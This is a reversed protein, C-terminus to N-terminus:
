GGDLSCAGFWSPTDAVHLDCREKAPCGGTGPGGDEVSADFPHVSGPILCVTHCIGGDGKRLCVLGDACDNAYDCRERNTLGFSDVCTASGVEDEVLCTEGAKCPETKFPKCRQRYTCVDHLPTNADPGVLTLDCAGSIGEPDSKGCAQDDGKCCAPSCRGTKPGGDSCANGVCTLGPLCPNAAAPCCARGMPLQQSVQVPECATRGANDAVCENGPPCDQLVIDCEGKAPSCHGGADVPAAEPKAEVPADYAVDPAETEVTADVGEAEPPTTSCAGVALAADAVLLAAVVAVGRRRLALFSAM